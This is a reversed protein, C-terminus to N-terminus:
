IQSKNYNEKYKKNLIIIKLKNNEHLKLKKIKLFKLRIFSIKYAFLMYMNIIM